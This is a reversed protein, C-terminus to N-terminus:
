YPPRHYMDGPPLFQSAMSPFPPPLPLSNSLSARPDYSPMMHPPPLDNPGPKGNIMDTQEMCEDVCLEIEYQFEGLDTFNDRVRERFKTLQERLSLSKDKLLNRREIPTDEIEIRFRRLIDIYRSLQDRFITINVDRQPSKRRPPSSRLPSRVRRPSKSRARRPPSRPKRRPSPSRRKRPSPSRRSRNHRIPSSRPPSRGRRPSKSRAKRRPSPSRRANVHSKKSPSRSRRRPSKKRTSPSKSRTSTQSTEKSKIAVVKEKDKQEKEIDKRCEELDKRVNDIANHYIKIMDARGSTLVRSGYEQLQEMYNLLLTMREVPAKNKSQVMDIQFTSKMFDDGAKRLGVDDKVNEKKPLTKNKVFLDSILSKYPAMIMEQLSTDDLTTKTALINNGPVMSLNKDWYKPHLKYFDKFTDPPFLKFKENEGGCAILIDLLKKASTYKQITVVCPTNKKSLNTSISCPLMTLNFFEVVSKINNVDQRTLNCCVIDEYAGTSTHSDLFVAFTKQIHSTKTAEVINPYKESLAEWKKLNLTKMTEANVLKCKLFYDEKAQITYCTESLLELARVSAELHPAHGSGSALFHDKFYVTSDSVTPENERPKTEIKVPKKFSFEFSAYLIKLAPSGRYSHALQEFPPLFLILGQYFAAGSKIELDNIIPREIFESKTKTQAEKREVISNHSEKEEDSIEMDDDNDEVFPNYKDGMSNDQLSKPPGFSSLPQTQQGGYKDTLVPPQKNLMQLQLQVLEEFNSSLTPAQTPAPPANASYSRTGQNQSEQNSYEIVTQSSSMIWDERSMGPWNYGAM